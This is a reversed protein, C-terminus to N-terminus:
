VHQENIVDGNSLLSRALSRSGVYVVHARGLNVRPGLVTRTPDGAPRGTKM